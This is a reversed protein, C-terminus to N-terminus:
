KNVIRKKKIVIYALASLLYFSLGGDIPAGGGAPQGPQNQTSGHGVNGAPHPAQSFSINSVFIMIMILMLKKYSINRM